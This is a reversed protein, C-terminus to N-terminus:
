DDPSDDNREDHTLVEKDIYTIYASRVCLAVVLWLMKRGPSKFTGYLSLLFRPLATRNYLGRIDNFVTCLNHLVPM